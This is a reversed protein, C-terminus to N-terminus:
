ISGHYEVIPISRKTELPQSCSCVHFWVVFLWCFGVVLGQGVDNVSTVCTKSDTWTVVHVEPAKSSEWSHLDFYFITAYGISGGHEEVFDPHRSRITRVSRWFVDAGLVSVQFFSTAHHMWFIDTTRIHLIADNTQVCLCYLLLPIIFAILPTLTAGLLSVLDAFFPVIQALFWSFSM